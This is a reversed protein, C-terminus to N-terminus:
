PLDFRTWDFRFDGEAGFTQRVEVYQLVPVTVTASHPQGDGVCVFPWLGDNLGPLYNARFVPPSGTTLRQEPVGGDARYEFCALAYNIVGNNDFTLTITGDGNPVATVFPGIQGPHGPATGAQNDANTSAFVYTNAAYTSAAPVEDCDVTWTMSGSDGLDDMDLETWQIGTSIVRTGGAAVGVSSPTAPIASFHASLDGTQSTMSVTLVQDISGDNKVTFSFPASGPASSLITPAAYTASDDDFTGGSSGVIKCAFTGVDISETGTVQDFFAAGVGSGLLGVILGTVALLGATKRLSV